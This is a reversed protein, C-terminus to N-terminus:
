CNRDACGNHRRPGPTILTYNFVDPVFGGGGLKTFPLAVTHDNFDGINVIWDLFGSGSPLDFQATVMTGIAGGFAAVLM